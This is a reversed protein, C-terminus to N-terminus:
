LVGRSQRASKERYQRPSMLYYKRFQRTFYLPDNFGV